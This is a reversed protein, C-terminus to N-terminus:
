EMRKLYADLGHALTEELDSKGKVFSWGRGDRLYHGTNRVIANAGFHLAQFEFVYYKHASHGIDLSLFPTDFRRYVERSYDLLGDPPPAEFDFLKTGSARFDGPRTHRKMLFFRDHVCTVRYDCDLGPMYEQIVFRSGPTMYDLWQAADKAPEFDPYGAYSRKGRLYKRRLADLRTGLPLAPTIAKIRRRLETESKCLFVGRANSGTITKLVLPYELECFKINEMESLYYSKPSNLGLKQKYLEAYGKNEHSLLLDLSPIIRNERSVLQMIDKIYERLHERQSFSYFITESKLTAAQNALRAFGIQEIEHGMGELLRVFKPTDISVWPKRGQGFFSNKLTAFLIRMAADGPRKEGGTRSQDFGHM